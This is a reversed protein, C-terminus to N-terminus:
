SYSPTKVINEIYRFSRGLLIALVLYYGGAVIFVEFPAYTKATFNKAIGTIDMITITSVISTAKLVLISENGIIPLINRYAQPLIIKYYTAFKSLGLAFSAEYQGKLINGLAGYVVEATYAASNLGIALIAAYMPERLLPWLFSERLFDVQALGYYVIFLQVLLPSGREIFIFISAPLRLFRNSSHRALGIPLALLQGLIFSTVTLTVTILFGNLVAPIARIFLDLSM